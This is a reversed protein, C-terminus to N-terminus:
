REIKLTRTKDKFFKIREELSSCKWNVNSNKWEKNLWKQWIKVFKTKLNWM